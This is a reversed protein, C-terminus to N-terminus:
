FAYGVGINYITQNPRTFLRQWREGKPFRPDKIKHGVDLRFVLFSLDLRLGIGAGIAIENYFEDVKFQAGSSVRVVEGAAPTENERLRWINGADIFFAWDFLGSIKARYEANLELLVEGPQEFLYSDSGTRNPVLEGNELVNQGDNDLLYPFSSGPGLRRPNWARNSSSGGTFFYKEYPLANNGSYPDAIGTNLRLALAKKGELPIHRRYDFQVKYFQYNELENNELLARGVLDYITGGSELFFRIFTSPRDSNGYDFNYSANFSSSSVFSRNFSFALTNGQLLLDQLQNDFDSGTVIDTDILSIDSLNFTYNKTNELNQWSYSFVGNLNRRVYESKRDVFSYGLSARTRPNFTSKNLNRSNFPTLFRPFILSMNGGYRTTQFANSQDTASSLGDVGVFGTLTFIEAGHFINRNKFTLNYFPGPPGETVNVGAEQTLQYKQLPATYLTALLKGPVQMTDLNINVFRFMDMNFLQRQTNEINTQNYLDGPKFRLRADLAKASYDFTGFNYKVGFYENNSQIPSNGNTNIIISDLTYSQHTNKDIPKNIVTTMWLDTKPPDELVQFEIYRKNFGFYGNNKLLLDIRDREKEINLRDYYSGKDLFSRSQNQKLLDTIKQDGTRVILSDIFDRPGEEIIYKLFIKRNKETKEVSVESSKLGQINILYANIKQRINEVEISDYVSLPSGTKMRFNGNTLKADYRDVVRQRKAQLKDLDKGSSDRKTMRDDISKLQKKRKLNLKVTDFNDEGNEYLAAGVPGLFPIRLNPKLTILELIDEENTKEIGEISQKFLWKEGDELHKVGACSAFLISLLIFLILQTRLKM